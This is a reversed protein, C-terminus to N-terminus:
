WDQTLWDLYAPFNAMWYGYDHGGVGVVLSSEIGVEELVEIMVESQALMLPDQEGCNFFVRLNNEPSVAALWERVQGEEGSVIGSGFLGMSGFSDPHSLALRYAGIGGQSAGAVARYRPQTKTRYQGDIYALVDNFIVEGYRDSSTSETSVMILPPIDGKLILEDAALGAGAALWDGPGGGLGPILYLVPYRLKGEAEYCPPLYVNFHYAYGRSTSELAVAQVTGAENCVLSAPLRTAREMAGTASQCGVLWLVATVLFLIRGKM